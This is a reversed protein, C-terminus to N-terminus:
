NIPFHKTHAERSYKFKSERLLSWCYEGLMEPQYSAHFREEMRAIDKHFREGQEDSFAGMNEPFHDLHSKLFHMKLSMRAGMEHYNQLLDRVIERYNPARYNGLFNKVISKFSEWARDEVPTLLAKFDADNKLLERIQPGNFVGQTVKASSLLPFFQDLYGIAEGGKELAKVFNKILGLKIHLPPPIITEQTVLPQTKVNFKGPTFEKRPPWSDRVFHEDDKRSHWLCLYCSHATYGSQLGMLLAIVKYDAIIKFNFRYYQILRLIQELTDFEEKLGVAYAVPISPKTNGNYLLVAKISTKSGDIFLRWVSPDFKQKM